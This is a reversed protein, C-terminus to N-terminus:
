CCPALLRAVNSHEKELAGQCVPVVSEVDMVFAHLAVGGSVFLWVNLPPPRFTSRTYMALSHNTM